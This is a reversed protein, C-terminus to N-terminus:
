FGIVNKQMKKMIPAEFDEPCLTLVDDKTVSNYDMHVLRNAQKMQAKEMINRVFRGNGFDESKVADDFISMLKERVGNSFAMGKKAAILKSIGFLEDPCYDEFPVHFAIRSRLGPNRSLFDEMENPYGAFIVVIDERNNEMEQVITNIAEDGFSGGRDDLLSYAEDIFLVSGRAQKFKDKVIKATWGVYKGVLDARGVEYLKGESLLGNEKMIKAFLRAVTTKATGPNGTFVMHMAPHQEKFGREAFLKQAKYFGLAEDIIKKANQLGVMKQLEDYAKGDDKRKSTTEGSCKIKAYQPYVETKLYNSQWREYIDNLESPSFETESNEVERYLRKNPKYNNEQAKSKLYNKARKGAVSDETIEVFTINKAEEFLISKLKKCAKPLCIIQLVDNGYVSLYHGADTITRFATDALSSDSIDGGIFDVRVAGGFSSKFLADTGMRGLDEMFIISYRAFGIRKSNYLASVLIDMMKARNKGNDSEILYHVPNGFTKGDGKCQYIRSIEDKLPTSLVAEAEKMLKNKTTNKEAFLECFFIGKRNALEEINLNRLVSKIGDIFHEEYAIELRTEFAHFTIEVLSNEAKYPQNLFSLYEAIDNETLEKNSAAALSGRWVDDFEDSLFPMDYAFIYADPNNKNYQLTKNKIEKAYKRTAERKEMETAKNFDDARPFTIKIDYYIM